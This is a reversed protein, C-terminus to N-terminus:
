NGKPRNTPVIKKPMKQALQNQRRQRESIALKTMMILQQSFPLKRINEPAFPNYGTNRNTM